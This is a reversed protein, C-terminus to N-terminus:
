TNLAPESHLRNPQVRQDEATVEVREDNVVLRSNTRLARREAASVVLDVEDQRMHVVAM